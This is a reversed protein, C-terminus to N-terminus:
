INVPRRYSMLKDHEYLQHIKEYMFRFFFLLNDYEDCLQTDKAVYTYEVLLQHIAEITALFWRPSGKQHRWFQSLRIQLKVCPLGAIRSDKLIGKSQSWTSDIFLAHTIVEGYCNKAGISEDIAQNKAKNYFEKLSVSSKGPYVLIVKDDKTYTPMDPYIYITVDDPAILAAHIATSKGAIERSHKIVDIKLPLKLRPIKNELDSNVTYCTYCFYKRSKFCKRCPQREDVNFLELWGNSINLNDFPNM